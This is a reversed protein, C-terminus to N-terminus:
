RNLALNSTVVLWAVSAALLFAPATLLAAAWRPGRHLPYAAAFYLLQAAPGLWRTGPNAFLYAAFPLYLLAAVLGTLGARASSARFAYLSLGFAAIVSICIM